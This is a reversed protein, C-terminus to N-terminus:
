NTNLINFRQCLKFNKITNFNHGFAYFRTQLGISIRPIREATPMFMEFLIKCITISIVMLLQSLLIVFKTFLSNLPTPRKVSSRICLSKICKSLFPFSICTLPALLRLICRNLNKEAQNLISWM